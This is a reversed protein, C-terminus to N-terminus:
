AQQRVRSLWRSARQAPASHAVTRLASRLRPSRVLRRGLVAARGGVRNLLLELEREIEVDREIAAPHRLPFSAPVAPEGYHHAAATHTADAGFGINEVLNDRPTASLGDDAAISIWWHKDWGHTVVDTSTAAEVFHRRAAATVLSTSAPVVPATRIPLHDGQRHSRVFSARHRQWRDAWTAWGWVSAWTSFRYSDDGFLREPVFHNNGAIHWVRHEDGFRELLEAAYRFFSPDPVCDDELVIARDVQSFVWDLGTEVNGDCGVNIESYRRHVECPWDIDDTLERVAACGATDDPRDARPGDLILFLERPAAARIAALTRRTVDPRNFAILAIPVELM